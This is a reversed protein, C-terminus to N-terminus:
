DAYKDAHAESASTSPTLKDRLKSLEINCWMVGDVSSWLASIAEIEGNLFAIVRSATFTAPM